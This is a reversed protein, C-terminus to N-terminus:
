DPAPPQAVQVLHRRREYLTLFLGSAAIVLMGLLTWGDPFDGFVFFGLVTAFLLQVYTISALGSAPARQLARIFLFHGGAALVGVLALLAVDLWEHHAPAGRWPAFATLVVAGVVSAYFLMTRADELALKRTLIQYSAGAAAAALPLAAAPQFISSGPRVILLVGILGAAVSALRLATVREGLFLFALVMVFTPATYSVATADALPMRGFALVMLLSSTIMLLGRVMQLAFSPTAVLRRGLRPGFLALLTLTQITYRVWVVFDAPYKAVLRKSAADLVSFCAIALVMTIAAGAAVHHPREAVM